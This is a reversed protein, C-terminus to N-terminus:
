RAGLMCLQKGVTALNIREEAHFNSTAIIEEQETRPPEPESDLRFGTHKKGDVVEMTINKIVYGERRLSHIARGYQSIRLDLVKNLPCPLGHYSRLLELIRDAETKKNM